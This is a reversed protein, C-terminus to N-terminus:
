KNIIESIEKLMMATAGWVTHGLIDFYRVTIEAKAMELYLPKEKIDAEGLILRLPAEILEAVEHPDRNFNPRHKPFGLFPSVLFRSPPIYIKSLEGLVEVEDPRINLEEHAERLATDILSKDSPEHKGGPFSVQGSHTGNYTNRLMLAIHAEDQKPYILALVASKRATPDIKEIDTAKPRKYNIMKQHADWGPLGESFSQQIKSLLEEM